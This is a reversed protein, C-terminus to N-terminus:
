IGVVTYIILGSSSWYINRFTQYLIISKFYVLHCFHGLYNLLIIILTDLIKLCIYVWPSIEIFSLSVRKLLKLRYILLVKIIINM